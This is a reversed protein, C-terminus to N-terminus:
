YATRAQRRQMNEYWAEFREREGALAKKVAEVVSQDANGQINVVPAFTITDGGSSGGAPIDALEVGLMRGTREWLDIGRSRKGESLPIISEPGAEAVLGLHPTSFVGGAAHPKVGTGAQYGTQASGKIKGWLNKFFGPVSETFFSKISKWISSALTPLTTTFLGKIRSWLSTFFSPVSETFFPVIHGSWTSSAWTPITVTFFNGISAWMTDWKQPLTVTFFPVIHGNWTNSAWTPLTVTFFNGISVWMADWKEPVTQTFFVQTKGAAYGIAYPVTQTFFNGVGAWFETWKEPLTQNFFVSAEAKIRGCWQPIGKTLFDGINNKLNDLVGGKDTADSLLKGLSSGKFLAGLGGVGAGIFAGPVAGIGGFLSGIAAGTAAGAGVMGIKTGGSFYQNKAEKGTTKTGKIIDMIGSGVGAAGALGGLLSGAGVAAGGLMTAAGSGLAKAIAPLFTKAGAIKGGVGVINGWAEKNPVGTAFLKKRNFIGMIGGIISNYIRQGMGAAGSNTILEGSTRTMSSNAMAAGTRVADFLGGRGFLGGASSGSRGFLLGKGGRFLGEVTPALKMGAFVLAITKLKSAVEDGNNLLYDIGRQIYPLADEMAKSLKEVGRSALQGLSDALQTLQPMNKRLNNMFGIVATNFEKQAPLFAQGLDQMLATQANQRMTKVAEPTGAQIMFEREMSGSYKSADNVEGLVKELLTINQTIKAGGEIAWQGFLTNLAAVKRESPMNNIAEFVSRLTGVGDSQMAKAVGEATFGLEKWMSQQAKTANAGKSINTYIRSISTGVRDTAVGTAQMATAIAATAAPNVGAIQGMSASQNVSQAIEAATTANNAGLYNIQDMLEMVQEHSFNFSQEWKAMYDGATQDELDMATAAVATDRLIGSNRQQAAGIGSQGLAASMTSLQQTTRPIDTSLDQIYSRMAKLNTQAQKATTNTSESLGDVYRVMAAMDNKLKAAESTCKAIGAVTATAMAGMATIGATGIKGVTRSFSSIQNQSGRLAAALSKDVRGAIQISLEITRNKAM